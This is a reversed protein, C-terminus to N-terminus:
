GRFQEKDREAKIAEQRALGEARKRERRMAADEYKDSSQEASTSQSQAYAALLSDRFRQIRETNTTFRENALGTLLSLHAESVICTPQGEADVFGVISDLALGNSRIAVMPTYSGDKNSALGM